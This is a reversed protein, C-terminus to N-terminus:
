GSIRNHREGDVPQEVIEREAQIGRLRLEPHRGYRGNVETSDGRIRAHPVIRLVKGNAVNSTLIQDSAKGSEVWQTIPDVENYV